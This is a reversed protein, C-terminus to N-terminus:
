TMRKLVIGSPGALMPPSSSPSRFMTSSRYCPSQRTRPPRAAAYSTFGLLGLVYGAMEWNGFHGTVIMLPRGSLMGEIVPRADTLDLYQKWNNTHLRRPLHIIEILLRCFHRYVGRVIRDRQ